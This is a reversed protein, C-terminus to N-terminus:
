WFQQIVTAVYTFSSSFNVKDVISFTVKSSCIGILYLFDIGFLPITYLPITSIVPIHPSHSHTPVPWRQTTTPPVPHYRHNHVQCGDKWWVELVLQGIPSRPTNQCNCCGLLHTIVISQHLFNEQAQSGLPILKVNKYFSWKSINFSWGRIIAYWVAMLSAACKM